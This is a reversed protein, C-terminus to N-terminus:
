KKKKRTPAACQMPLSLMWKGATWTLTYCAASKATSLGANKKNYCLMFVAHDAAMLKGDKRLEELHGTMQTMDTFEGFDQMGSPSTIRVFDFNFIM